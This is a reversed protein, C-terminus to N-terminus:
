NFISDLKFTTNGTETNRLCKKIYRTIFHKYSGNKRVLQLIFIAFDHVAHHVQIGAEKILNFTRYM